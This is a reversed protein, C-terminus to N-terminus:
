CCIRERGSPNMFDIHFTVKGLRHRLPDQPLYSFTMEGEENVLKRPGRSKRNEATLCISSSNTIPDSSLFYNSLQSWMDTIQRNMQDPFKAVSNLYETLFSGSAIVNNEPILKDMPCSNCGASLPAETKLLFHFRFFHLPIHLSYFIRNTRISALHHSNDRRECDWYSGQKTM